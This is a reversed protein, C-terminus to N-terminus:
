QTSYGRGEACATMARRYDPSNQAVQGAQQGAWQQCEAKDQAQQQQSQGNKPYMFIQGPIAAGDPQPAAPAGANPAGGDSDGAAPPPDTAVYGDYDQNYTYYVDNAYYYPVGGWWYTAYALPLIPLFWAFGPGYYARPWWGGHWYGGRWYAGTSYGHGYYYGGPRGYAGHGIAAGHYGGPYTRAYGAGAAGRYAGVHGGPAFHAGGGFHGAAPHGGGFHAGGGFHGGGGGAHGGGGHAQAVASGAGLMASLVGTALILGKSRINM